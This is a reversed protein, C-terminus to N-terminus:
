IKFPSYIIFPVDFIFPNSLLDFDYKFRDEGVIRVQTLAIPTTAVVTIATFAVGLAVRSM